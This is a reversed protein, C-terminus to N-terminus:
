NLSLTISRPLKLFIQKNIPSKYSVINASMTLFLVEGEKKKWSLTQAVKFNTMSQASLQVLHGGSTGALRFIDIIQSLDSVPYYWINRVSYIKMDKDLRQHQIKSIYIILISSYTLKAESCKSTCYWLSTSMLSTGYDTVYSLRFQLNFLIAIM